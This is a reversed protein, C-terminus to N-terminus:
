RCELYGGEPLELYLRYEQWAPDEPLLWAECGVYAENDTAPTETYEPGLAEVPGLSVCGEPLEDLVRDEGFYHYFGYVLQDIKFSVSLVQERMDPSADGSAGPATLSADTENSAGASDTGDIGEGGAPASPLASDASMSAAPRDEGANGGAQSGPAASGGGMGIGGLQSIGYGLVIVVALSAALGIWRQRSATRATYREAEQLLDDDLLGITDLLYEANM